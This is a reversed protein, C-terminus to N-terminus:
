LPNKELEKKIFNKWKLPEGGLSKIKENCERIISERKKTIVGQDKKATFLYTRIRKKLKNLEGTADGWTKANDTRNDRSMPTKDIEEM